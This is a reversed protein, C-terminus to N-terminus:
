LNFLEQKFALLCGIILMVSICFGVILFATIWNPVKSQENEKLEKFRSLFANQETTMASLFLRNETKIQNFLEEGKTTDIKVTTNQIEKVSKELRTADKSLSEIKDILIEAITTINHKQKTM